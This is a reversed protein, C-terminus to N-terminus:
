KVRKQVKAHPRAELDDDNTDKWVIVVGSAPLVTFVIGIANVQQARAGCLEQALDARVKKLMSARNAKM